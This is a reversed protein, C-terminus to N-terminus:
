CHRGKVSFFPIATLLPILNTALRHDREWLDFHDPEKMSKTIIPAKDKDKEM